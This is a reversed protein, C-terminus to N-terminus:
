QEIVQSAESNCTKCSLETMIHKIVKCSSHSLESFETTFCWASHLFNVASIFWWAFNLTCIKKLIRFYPWDLLIKLFLVELLLRLIRPIVQLNQQLCTSATLTCSLSVRFIVHAVSFIVVQLYSSSCYASRICWQRFEYIFVFVIFCVLDDKWSFPL